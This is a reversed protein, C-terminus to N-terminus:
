HGDWPSCVTSTKYWCQRGSSNLTLKGTGLMSNKPEASLLWTSNKSNNTPNKDDIDKYEKGDIDNISLSYNSAGNSPINSGYITTIDVNRFSGNAIKYAVLKQSITQMTTQAEVRKTRQSYAAYSPYAIAALIGIIVVVIMLEILTFGQTSM